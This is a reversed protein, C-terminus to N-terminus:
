IRNMGETWSFPLSVNSEMRRGNGEVVAIREEPSVRPICQARSGFLRWAFGRDHDATHM